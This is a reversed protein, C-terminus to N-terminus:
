APVHELPPDTRAASPVLEALFQDIAALAEPLGDRFQGAMRQRYVDLRDLFNRLTPLTFEHPRIKQGIGLREIALANMRQEVCRQPLVLLPKQLFLGEGVLQNGPTSIVAPCRALDELFPLDRPPLFTLRGARGRRDSGYIHVPLGL